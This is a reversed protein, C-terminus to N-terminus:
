IHQCIKLSSNNRRFCSGSDNPLDAVPALKEIAELNRQARKEDKTESVRELRTWRTEDTSFKAGYTQLLATLVAITHNVTSDTSRKIRGETPDIGPIKNFLNFLNMLDKKLYENLKKEVL